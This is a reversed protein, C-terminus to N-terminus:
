KGGIVVLSLLATVVSGLVIWVVRAQNSEIAAIREQLYAMVTELKILREGDREEPM